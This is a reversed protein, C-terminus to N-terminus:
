QGRMERPSAKQLRQARSMAMNQLRREIQAETIEIRTDPNDKNWKRLRALAENKMEPKKNFIGEAIDGAIEREVLRQLAQRQAKVRNIAQDQAVVGPQFGIAKVAADAGTTKIVTRNQADRYTGTRWMDAAKIANQIAVPWAKNGEGRATELLSNMYSGM